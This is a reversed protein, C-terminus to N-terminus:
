APLKITFSTGKGLESQVTIKGGHAEVLEKVIALGIGLGGTHRSRSADVRYFREFIFPLDKEPIGEGEDTVTLMLETQTNKIDVTVTKSSPTYKLANSLLNQVIQTYRNKDVKAEVVQLEAMLQLKVKKNDFQPNMQKLIRQTLEHINLSEPKVTYHPEELAALTRVEELMTQLRQAEEQMLQLTEKRKVEGKIVDDNLAELYGSINTLPTALEHAVNTILQKQLHRHEELAAAMRNLSATLEGIEDEAEVPVRAHYNGQAIEKTARILRHVPGTLYRITIYSFLIAVFAAGIATYVISNQITQLLASNEPLDLIEKPPNFGANRLQNYFTQLHHEVQFDTFWGVLFLTCLIIAIYSIFLKTQLPQKTM